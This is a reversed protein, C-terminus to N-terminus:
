LLEGQHAEGSPSIPDYNMWLVEVRADLGGSGIVHWAAEREARRWGLSDWEDGYGSIAVRGQQVLLAAGLADRDVDCRYQSKDADRYPPDCYIVAEEIEAFDRLLQVGDRCELQVNWMREALAAVRGSRWRGLGAGGELSPRRRRRWSGATRATLALGQHAIVHFARARELDSLAPDDVAGVAWEFERRSCPTTQVAWGFEDPQERVVKWWNVVRGDLDNLMECKVPPRALGVGFMGGFIEVYTTEFEWPLLPVIWKAKGYNAKGGYYRLAKLAGVGRRGSAGVGM